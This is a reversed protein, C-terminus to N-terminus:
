RRMSARGQPPGVHAHSLEESWGTADGVRDSESTAGQWLLYHAIDVWMRMHSLYGRLGRRKEPRMRHTVGPWRVWEVQYGQHYAHLSLAVEVSWGSRELAPTGAFRSWRLCRQGSLFPTIRHSWDTPRRGHVFLSISMDCEGRATPAMLDHIHEPRVGILDADLLLLLDNRAHDVGTLLAQAKGRNHAHRILRLRPDVACYSRVIDATGDSSGDDVVLIQTLQVVELLVALVDGVTAAENYAPIIATIPENIGNVLAPYLSARRQVAMM